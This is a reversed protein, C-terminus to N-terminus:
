SELPFFAVFSPLQPFLSDLVVGLPDFYRQFTSAAFFESGSLDELEQGYLDTVKGIRVTYCTYPEFEGKVTIGNSHVKVRFSAASFGVAFTLFCVFSSVTTPPVTCPEGPQPHVSIGTPAPIRIEPDKITNSFSVTM